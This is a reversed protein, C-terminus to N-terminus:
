IPHFDRSDKGTDGERRHCTSHESDKLAESIPLAVKESFSDHLYTANADEVPLQHCPCILPHRELKQFINEPLKVPPRSRERLSRLPRQPETNFQGPRAAPAATPRPEHADYTNTGCARRGIRLDAFASVGKGPGATLLSCIRSFHTASMSCFILSNLLM